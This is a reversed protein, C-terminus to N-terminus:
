PSKHREGRVLLIKGLDSSICGPDFLRPRFIRGAGEPKSVPRLRALSNAFIVVIYDTERLIEM